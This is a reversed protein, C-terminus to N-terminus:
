KFIALVGFLSYFQVFVFGKNPSEKVRSGLYTIKNSKSTNGWRQGFISDKAQEVLQKVTDTFWKEQKKLESYPYQNQFLKPIDPQAGPINRIFLGRCMIELYTRFRLVDEESIKMQFFSQGKHKLELGWTIHNFIGRALKYNRPNKGIIYADQQEGKAKDILKSFEQLAEPDFSCRIQIQKVFWEDEKSKLNNCKAHVRLKPRYPHDKNFLEDPIIHDYTFNSGLKQGCLYCVKIEEDKM